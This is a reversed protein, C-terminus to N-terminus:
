PELSSSWESAVVHAAKISASAFDREAAWNMVPMGLAYLISSDRTGGKAAQGLVAYTRLNVKIGGAVDSVIEGQDILCRIFPDTNNSIDLDDGSAQIVYDAYTHLANGSADSYDLRVREGEVTIHAGAYGLGMASLVGADFLALMKEANIIPMAAVNQLFLTRLNKTFYQKDEPRLQSFLQLALLQRCLAYVTNGQKAKDLDERLKEEATLKPLFYTAMEFGQGLHEKLEKELLRRLEDLTLYGDNCEKITSLAKPTFYKLKPLVAPMGRVIPFYGSRSVAIIHAHANGPRYRLAGLKNRYFTGTALTLITDLASLGMGRVVIQKPR